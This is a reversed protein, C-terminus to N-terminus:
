ESVILLRFIHAQVVPGETGMSVDDTIVAIRSDFDHGLQRNAFCYRGSPGFLDDSGDKLLKFPTLFVRANQESPGKRVLEVSHFTLVAMLGNFLVPYLSSCISATSDFVSQGQIGACLLPYVKALCIASPEWNM